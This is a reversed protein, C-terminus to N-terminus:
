GCVAYNRGAGVPRARAPTLPPAEEGRVLRLRDEREAHAALDLREGIGDAPEVADVLQLVARKEEGIPIRARERAPALLLAHLLEGVAELTGRVKAHHRACAARHRHDHGVQRLALQAEDLEAASLLVPSLARVAPPGFGEGNWTESGLLLPPAARRRLRRDAHLMEQFRRASGCPCPDNRGLKEILEKGGRVVRYGRQVCAESPYGKRRKSTVEFGSSSSISKSEWS